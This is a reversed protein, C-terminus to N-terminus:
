RPSELRSKVTFTLDQEDGEQPLRTPPIVEVEAHTASQELDAALLALSDQARQVQAETTGTIQIQYGEDGPDVSLSALEAVGEFAASSDRLVRELPVGRSLLASLGEADSRLDARARSLAQARREYADVREELVRLDALEIRGAALREGLARQAIWGAFLTAALAAGILSARLPRALPLEVGLDVVLAATCRATALLERRPDNGEGVPVLEVNGLAARLAPQITHCVEAPLGISVVGVLGVGKGTKRWWAGLNRVEQVLSLTSARDDHATASNLVTELLLEGDHILAVLTESRGGALVIVAGASKGIREEARGVIASRAVVTRQVRVGEGRLCELLHRLFSRRQAYITWPRPEESGTPRPGNTRASWLVDTPDGEVMQQARRALIERLEKAALEPLRVQRQAVLGAGLALICRRPVRAGAERLRDVARQAIQPARLDDLEAALVRGPEGAAPVLWELERGDLFLVATSDSSPRPSPPM